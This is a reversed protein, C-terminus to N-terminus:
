LSYRFGLFFTRQSKAYGKIYQYQDDLLNDVRMYAELGNALQKSISLNLLFYEDLTTRVTNYNEDYTNDYRKSVYSIESWMNIDWPLFCSLIISHKYKPRRLLTEGTVLNEAQLLTSLLKLEINKGIQQSASFEIGRTEAKGINYYIWNLTDFDILEEYRNNFYSLNLELSHSPFKQALSIEWSMSKESELSTNGYPSYLEYLSPAKFGTSINGYLSTNTGKIRYFPTVRYTLRNDSSYSDHRLGAIIGFSDGAYSYEIFFSDSGQKEEDMIDHYPGYSNESFYDYSMISQNHEYGFLLMDQYNATMKYHLLGGEYISDIIDPSTEDATNRYDRDTDTWSFSLNLKIPDLNLGFNNILTRYKNKSLYNPDDGYSDGFLDIHSRAYSYRFITTNEAIGYKLTAKLGAYFRNAPDPDNNATLEPDAAYVEKQYENGLNLDLSLIGKSFGAYINQYHGKTSVIGGNASFNWSRDTNARGSIINIVGGMANTGYVSGQSTKIIEIKEIEGLSINNFDFSGDVTSPDNIPVGNYLVATHSPRAGRIYMSSSQGEMGNRVLHIGTILNLLATLDRAGSKEIDKRTIVVASPPVNEMPVAIHSSTIIVEDYYINQSYAASFATLMLLVVFFLHKM